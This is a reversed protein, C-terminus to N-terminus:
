ALHATLKLLELLLCPQQQQQQPQPQHLLTLIKIVVFVPFLKMLEERPQVAITEMAWTKAAKIM